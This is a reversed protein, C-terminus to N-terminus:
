LSLAGPGVWASLGADAVVAADAGPWDEVCDVLTGDVGTIGAPVGVASIVVGCSPPFLEWGAGGGAFGGCPVPVTTIRM